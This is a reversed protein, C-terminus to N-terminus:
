GEMEEPPETGFQRLIEEEFLELCRSNDPCTQCDGESSHRCRNIEADTM